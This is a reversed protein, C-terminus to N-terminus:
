QKMNVMNVRPKQVSFHFKYSWRSESSPWLVEGEQSKVLWALKEQFKDAVSFHMINVHLKTKNIQRQMVRGLQERTHKM